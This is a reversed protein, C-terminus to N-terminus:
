TISRLNQGALALKGAVIELPRAAAVSRELRYRHRSVERPYKAAAVRTTRGDHVYSLSSDMTLEPIYSAASARTGATDTPLEALQASAMCAQECRVDKEMHADPARLRVHLRGDRGSQMCRTSTSVICEHYM